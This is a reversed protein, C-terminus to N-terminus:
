AGEDNPNTPPMNGDTQELEDDEVYLLQTNGMRIIDGAHLTHERVMIDNVFTGSRSQGDFLTYRGFRLRIQAHHRSVQPDELIVHNDLSRGVNLLPEDLAITRTGVILQPNNPHENKAPIAVRNIINTSNDSAQIHHATVRIDGSKLAEDSILEIVPAADLRYGSSAALEVMHQSLIATLNPQRKQLHAVTDASVRIRYSDPAISRPDRDNSVRLGSEMGRALQLAVDQARIKKGFFHAFAGEVLNELRAELQAINSDKM